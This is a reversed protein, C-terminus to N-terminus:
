RDFSGVRNLVADLSKIPNKNSMAIFSYIGMTVFEGIITLFSNSITGGQAKAIKFYSIM